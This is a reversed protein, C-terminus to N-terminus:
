QVYRTLWDNANSADYFVESHFGHEMLKNKLLIVLATEFSQQCVMALREIPYNMIQEALNDIFSNVAIASVKVVLKSFDILLFSSENLLFRLDTLIVECSKSVIGELQISCLSRDLEKSVLM